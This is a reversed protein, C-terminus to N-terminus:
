LVVFMMMYFFDIAVRAKTDIFGWKGNKMVGALNQSFDLVEDYLFDFDM